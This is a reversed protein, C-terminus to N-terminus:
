NFSMLKIPGNHIASLATQATIPVAAQTMGACALLSSSAPMIEEQTQRRLVQMLSDSPTEFPELAPGSWNTGMM